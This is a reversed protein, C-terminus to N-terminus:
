VSHMSALIDEHMVVVHVGQDAGVTKLRHRLQEFSANQADTNEFEVVFLINFYGGVITQSMDRIDGSFEGIAVTLAAVIGSRNLGHATIVVRSHDSNSNSNVNTKSNDKPSNDLLAHQIEEQIVSRMDDNTVGLRREVAQLIDSTSPSPDQTM